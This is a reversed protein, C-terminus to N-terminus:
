KNLIEVKTHAVSIGAQDFATKIKERGDWLATWYDAAAVWVRGELVITGAALEAVLVDIPQDALCQPLDALVQRFIDKAAKLDTAYSVNVQIDVRRTTQTSFNEISGGALAGNPVAVEHNDVTIMRTYILGIDSVTGAFGCASIFDGVKFPRMLLILIGGALNSLSGQLALGVTVGASALIAAFSTIEYGVVQLIILVLLIYLAVKVAKGVFSRITVETGGKEMGRDVLKALSGIIAKGIFFIVIALVVQLGKTVALVQATEWWNLLMNM